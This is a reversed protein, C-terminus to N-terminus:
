KVEKWEGCSFLRKVVIEREDFRYPGMVWAEAKMKAARQKGMRWRIVGKHMDLEDVMTLIQVCDSNKILGELLADVNNALANSLYKDPKFFLLAMVPIVPNLIRATAHDFCSIPADVSFAVLDDESKAFDDPLRVPFPLAPYSVALINELDAHWPQLNVKRQAVRRTRESVPIPTRGMFPSVDSTVKNALIDSLFGAIWHSPFGINHVHILLDVFSVLNSPYYTRGMMSQSLLPPVLIAFLVRTLWATFENHPALDHLSNPTPLRKLTIYGWADFKDMRCGLFSPLEHPLLHTYTYCLEEGGDWIGTNLLCNFAATSVLPDQLSPVAYIAMNFAGQTYDPVNSMWMRSYKKPFDDPRSGDGGLGMKALEHSLEGYVIEVKIQGKLTKLADVVGSFFAQGVSFCPCDPDVKKNSLLGLRRCAHYFADINSFANFGMDPYGNVRRNTVLDFLSPNPEWHDFVHAQAEKVLGGASSRRSPDQIAAWVVLFEDHAKRLTLPPMFVRASNYWAKELQFERPVPEVTRSGLDEDWHRLSDLLGAVAETNVYLWSPLGHLDNQLLHMARRVVECFRQHCYSPMVVGFYAYFITAMIELRTEESHGHDEVLEDILLFLCLDRALATPQIDLLTLHVRFQSQQSTELKAHARNLGFFRGDGVGGFLFALRSLQETSLKNLNMSDKEDPGPGWDDVISMPDDHGISYYELGTDVTRKFIPLGALRKRAVAAGSKVMEAESSVRHWEKRVLTAESGADAKVGEKSLEDILEANQQVDDLTIKGSRIGYTLAKALRTSLRESLSSQDQSAKLKNSACLIAQLCANYDGLEFLAASINSPYVADNPSAAEAQMYLNAAERYLRARFKVNGKEKLELAQAAM